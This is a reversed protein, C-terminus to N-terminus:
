QLLHLNIFDEIFYHRSSYSVYSRGFTLTNSSTYISARISFCQKCMCAKDPFHHKQNQFCTPFTPFMHFCLKHQLFSKLCKQRMLLLNHKRLLTESHAFLSVVNPFTNGCCHKSTQGLLSTKFRHIITFQNGLINRRLEEMTCLGFSNEGPKCWISQCLIDRYIHYNANKFEGFDGLYKLALQPALRIKTLPTCKKRLWVEHNIDNM